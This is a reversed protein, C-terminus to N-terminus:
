PERRPDSTFLRDLSFGVDFYLARWDPRAADLVLGEAAGLSYVVTRRSKDLQVQALEREIGSLIGEAIAGFPQYDELARFSAGPEYESAALSAMRYETYRAIGEKWLQFALYRQADPALGANLRERTAALTALRSEFDERGRADLAAALSRGLALFQAGVKPDAYPFPFELMWMGTTDGRALGLASVAADNGPRSDQYQHFHEHLLTIVWRSSTKSETAEAQGIVITAVGAV